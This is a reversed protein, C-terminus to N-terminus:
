RSESLSKCGLICMDDLKDVAEKRGCPLWKGYTDVTLGISAHGLQRQVYTAPEGAQLLLSAYTHRLHHPSHHSPLGAAKLIGKFAKRAAGPGISFIRGTPRGQRLYCERLQATLYASIDVIRAKGSKTTGSDSGRSVRAERRELDIDGWELTLAEGIRLGTRSMLLFLLYHPSGGASGMFAALEDRDFAKIDGNDSHGLRLARCVGAAPNSEILGDDVAATLLSRLVAGIQKVTGRSLGAQLRGALFAKIAGRTLRSLRRRGLAPLIHLRLTQRYARATNPALVAGVQRLWRESYARIDDPNPM